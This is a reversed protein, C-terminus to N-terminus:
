LKRWIEPLWQAPIQSLSRQQVEIGLYRAQLQLNRVIAQFAVQIMATNLEQWGTLAQVYHRLARKLLPNQVTAHPALIIALQDYVVGLSHHTAWPDFGLQEVPLQNVALLATEYATAAQKWASFQDPSREPYHGGLDWYATGLNNHTAACGATDVDLTRYALATRYAGIAKELLPIPTGYRSLSWLAIGLNNQLQAYSLPSTQPQAHHLAEQYAVIARHLHSGEQTHQALSWYATGLHTQLTAYETPFSEVPTYHLARVFARVAKNLYTVPDQHAALLSYVSGLNTHVRALIVAETGPSVPALAAEYLSSSHMLREVYVTIVQAQQAWLWYFSGLDNLAETPHAVSQPYTLLMEYHQIASELTAPSSDGM